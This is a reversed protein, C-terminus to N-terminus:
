RIQSRKELSWIGVVLVTMDDLPVEGSWELIQELIHHALEKPNYINTGSIIAEMLVEQEGVPLADLIGDTVMIIFDGDSLQRTITEVELDQLVGIPLSTSSIREVHDKYKIFTTSAGVKMIECSGDYLDFVSMDLTSFRVDERGMVLATNMMQIATEKPFGAGLLEELMEVVMASEKFAKEGSGMGDSLVVGQKGGPIDMMLFSDGSIRDCGKGIKAVGQLTHFGPGELSTVTCYESGILPRENQELIMKRGVCLSLLRVLEKTTICRGKMSKVTVHIEYRGEATVFFVSSLLRIGAKRFQNKIKKELHDDTFISADLERTVHQIMQAFTDLQIVCGERNQAIRNNWRLMQKANQFVELTERLFRPAQICRKQLRRKTGVNLEIGYNEVASLIEYVMQYTTVYNEGFCKEKQECHVCVKEKVREFMEEIEYGSLSEKKEELGLFTHSLHRLSDAFKDMQAVYPSATVKQGERTDEMEKGGKSQKQAFFLKLFM